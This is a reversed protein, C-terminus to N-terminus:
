RYGVKLFIKDTGGDFIKWVSRKIKIKLQRWALWTVKEDKKEESCHILILPSTGLFIFKMNTLTQSTWPGPLHRQPWNKKRQSFSSRSSDLVFDSPPMVRGLSSIRDEFQRKRTRCIKDSVQKDLDSCCSRLELEVSELEPLEPTQIELWKRIWTPDASSHTAGPLRWGRSVRQVESTRREEGSVFIFTPSKGNNKM